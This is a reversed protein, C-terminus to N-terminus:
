EVPTLEYKNETIKHWAFNYPLTISELTNSLDERSFSGTFKKNELGAYDLEIGFQREVENAVRPFPSASFEFIGELWSPKKRAIQFNQPTKQAPLLTGQGPELLTNLKGTPDSVRVKGTFCGVELEQNRARVNFSTGLVEVVGSPTRVKFRKGKEVEFFVEGEMELERESEFSGEAFSLKSGANLVARSGDPLDVTSQEQVGTAFIQLDEGPISLWFVALLLLGAAIGTILWRNRQFVNTQALTPTKEEEDVTQVLREWSAEADFPPAEWEQSAEAIQKLDAFDERNEFAELEAENLDGSLWRAILIDQTGDEKM